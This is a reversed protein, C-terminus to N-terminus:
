RRRRSQRMGIVRIRLRWLVSRLRGRWRTPNITIFRGRRGTEIYIWVLASNPDFKAWEWSRGQGPILLREEGPVPALYVGTVGVANISKISVPESSGNYVYLGEVSVRAHVAALIRRDVFRLGAYYAIVLTLLNAVLNGAAGIAFDRM